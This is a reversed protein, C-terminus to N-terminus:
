RTARTNTRAAGFVATEEIFVRPVNQKGGSFQGRVTSKERVFCCM